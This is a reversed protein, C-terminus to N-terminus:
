QCSRGFANMFLHFDTAGICEGPADADRDLNANANYRLTDVPCSNWAGALVALDLGDIRTDSFTSADLNIDSHACGSTPDCVDATCVANDSPCNPAPGGVCAGANDCTDTTTCFNGDECATGNPM